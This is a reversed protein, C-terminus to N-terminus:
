GVIPREEPYSYLRDSERLVLAAALVQPGARGMIMLCILVGRGLADLDPTVGTSLGATALASLSEFMAAGVELGSAAVLLLTGLAAAGTAIVTVTLAQRQVVDPIRRGMVQVHPAGRVAAAAALLLVVFTTVKIGGGTSVSGVGVLMLFDTVLLTEPRMEGYDVTNFGATRPTIGQFAGAVLRDAPDLAGLTGPNGWEFATVAVAGFLILGLTGWLTIRTHLSWRRPRRRRRLVDAWVPIGLGGAVIALAVLLNMWVDGAFRVLNDSWLTFGANNFATVATFLGNWAASGAAYGDSLLRVFIGLAVAGEIALTLLVVGRLVARVEGPDNLAIETQTALRSRLGIRRRVLLVLMATASMVGIGGLQVLLLIVVQGPTSWYTATDTVALGTVTVASTATFLADSVPAGGPGSRCAPLLLLLTGVVIAGLFGLAM